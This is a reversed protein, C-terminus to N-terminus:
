LILPTLFVVPYLVIWSGTMFYWYSASDVVDSFHKEEIRDGFLFITFIVTEIAQLLLITGHFGLTMWMISGYANTDWRANIALFEQWRIAVFAISLISVVLMWRRVGGLDLHLAARHALAQPVNSLLMAAVQLTPWFLAPRLTHEPPWTYFNLRLYLYSAACIFLTTGEIVMFGVTGWWVMDRPGFAVTPLRSVDVRSRVM